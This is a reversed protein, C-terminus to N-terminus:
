CKTNGPNIWLRLPVFGKGTLVDEGGGYFSTGKCFELGREQGVLWEGKASMVADEGPWYKERLRENIKEVREVLAAVREGDVREAGEQGPSKVLFGDQTIFRAITIHASLAIYRPKMRLGTATVMESVDRRLHHYTYGGDKGNQVTDTELGTAPLFSLAMATADYSIMPKVLRTRHHFTYDALDPVIGHGQLHSVLEEVELQPRCSAIELTTMHLQSSPTFWISPAVDEIDRQIEAVLDRIHQPPRAYLTLNHRPDVFPPDTPQRHLKGLIEDIQWGPFDPSLLKTRYQANRNTRHTEYRAHIQTTDDQCEIILQDFPNPDQTSKDM